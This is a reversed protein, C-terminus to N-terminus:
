LIMFKRAKELLDDYTVVELDRTGDRIQKYAVPDIEARRGIVVSLKPRFATFGYKERVSERRAKDDFYDRYTRLQAAADAIAASFRRRNHSGVILSATPLKIDVIDCLTGDHPRLLFDPVLPGDAERELVVQSHLDDYDRGLLFQPHRELFLQIDRETARSSALIDEFEDIEARLYSRTHKAIVYPSAILIGGDGLGPISVQYIPGQAGPLVQIRDDALTLLINAIERTSLGTPNLLRSIDDASIEIREHRSYDVDLVTFVTLLHTIELLSRLRESIRNLTLSGSSRACMTYTRVIEGLGASDVYPMMSGDVIIDKYGASVLRVVLNKLDDANEHILRPPFLVVRGSDLVAQFTASM